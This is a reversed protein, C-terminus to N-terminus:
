GGNGSPTRLGRLRLSNAVVSLSSLMDASAAPLESLPTLPVSQKERMATRVIGM